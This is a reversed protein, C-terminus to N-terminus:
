KESFRSWLLPSRQAPPKRHLGRRNVGGKQGGKWKFPCWCQVAVADGGWKGLSLCMALMTTPGTVVWARDLGVGSIVQLRFPQLVAHPWEM